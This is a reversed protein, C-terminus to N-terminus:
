FIDCDTSFSGSTFISVRLDEGAQSRILHPSSSIASILDRSVDFTANIEAKILNKIWQM